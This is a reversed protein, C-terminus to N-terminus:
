RLLRKKKFPSSVSRPRTATLSPGLIPLPTMYKVCGPQCVAGGLLHELGRVHGGLDARRYRGPYGQVGMGEGGGPCVGVCM